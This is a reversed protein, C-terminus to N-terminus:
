PIRSCNPMVPTRCYQFSQKSGKVKGAQLQIPLPLRAPGADPLKGWQRALLRPLNQTLGPPASNATLNRLFGPPLPPFKNGSPSVSTQSKLSKGIPLHPNLIGRFSSPKEQSLKAWRKPPGM